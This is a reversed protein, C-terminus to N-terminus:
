SGPRWMKWAFRHVYSSTGIRTLRSADDGSRVIGKATLTGSDYHQAVVHSSADDYRGMPYCFHRVPRNLRAELLQKSTNVERELEEAALGPLARHTMGHSGITILGADLAKVDDWTMLSYAQLFAMDPQFSLTLQQIADIVNQRNDGGEMSRVWIILEDPSNPAEPFMRQLKHWTDNTFSELRARIDFTWPVRGGDILDPCVYVTAPTKRTVLEPYIHTHFSTFGDDFTLAVERGTISSEGNVKDILERLPVIDFNSDLFNLLKVFESATPEGPMNVGHFMIIRMAHRRHALHASLGTRLSVYKLPDLIRRKITRISM